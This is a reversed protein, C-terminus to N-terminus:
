ISRHVGHNAFNNHLMDRALEIFEVALEKTEFYGLHKVVKHLAIQARWKQIRKHFSVGKYGSV